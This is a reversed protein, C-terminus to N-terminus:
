DWWTQIYKRMTKFLLEIDQEKMSQTHVYMHIKPFDMLLPNLSKTWDIGDKWFRDIIGHTGYDDKLIRDILNICLSIEKVHREGDGGWPFGVKKSKMLKRKLLLLTYEFDGERDDWLEYRYWWLNKFFNKIRYFM